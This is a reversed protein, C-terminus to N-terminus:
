LDSIRGYLALRVADKISRPPSALGLPLQQRYLQLHEFIIGVDDEIEIPNPFGHVRTTGLFKIGKTGKFYLASMPIGNALKDAMEQRADIEWQPTGPPLVVSPAKIWNGQAPLENRTIRGVKKQPGKIDLDPINARESGDLDMGVDFGDIKARPANLDKSNRARLGISENDLASKFQPYHRFFVGEDKALDLCIEDWFLVNVKFKGAEARELSIKRLDRQLLRDRKATTAIYLHKLKPIFSEANKIEKRVVALSIGDVTNKCQIGILREADDHGWIDVGDQKQGPRGNRYFERSDWRLKAASLSIDEFEHWSKPPPMTSSAITPM